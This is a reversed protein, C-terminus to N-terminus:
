QKKDKNNTVDRLLKAAEWLRSDRTIGADPELWNDLIIQAPAPDSMFDNFTSKDTVIAGPHGIDQLIRAVEPAYEQVMARASSVGHAEEVAAIVAYTSDDGTQRCLYVINDVDDKSLPQRLAPTGAVAVLFRRAALAFSKQWRKTLGDWEDPHNYPDSARLADYFERGVDVGAAAQAVVPQWRHPAGDKESQDAVVRPQDTGFGTPDSRHITDHWSVPKGDRNVLVWGLPKTADSM